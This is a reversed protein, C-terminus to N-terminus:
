QTTPIFQFTNTTLDSRDVLKTMDKDRFFQLLFQYDPGIKPQSPGMNQWLWTM